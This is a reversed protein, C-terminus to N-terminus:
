KGIKYSGVRKQDKHLTVIRFGVDYFLNYSRDVCRVSCAAVIASNYWSSGKVIREVLSDNSIRFEDHEKEYPFHLSATWEWVNGAMDCPGEPWPELYIGVPSPQRMNLVNTSVHGKDDKWEDGWPYIRDDDVQRSAHEWEFETPITIIHEPDLKGTEHGLQMAWECYALAEWYNIGVVPQNPRNFRRDLWYYPTNRPATRKIAEEQLRDVDIEKDRIEKAHHEYVKSLWHDQILKLTKQDGSVWGRGLDSNWYELKSYGDDEIFAQFEVNTVPYRGIRFSEFEMKRVDGVFGGSKTIIDLDFRSSGVQAKGSSVNVLHDLPSCYGNDSVFRSDGLYGLVTASRERDSLTLSSNEVHSMLRNQTNEWLENNYIDDFKHLAIRHRGIEALMEAGLQISSVSNKEESKVLDKILTLIYFLNSGEHGAFSAMLRFPERWHATKGRTLAESHHAGTAYYQGALFEQFSRHAFKFRGNGIDLLLGHSKLFRRALDDAIPANNSFEASSTTDCIRTAIEKILEVTIGSKEAEATEQENLHTWYAIEIACALVLPTAITSSGAERARWKASDALMYTIARDCIVARSEPLRAEESHILVLLALLLPSEALEAIGEERIEQELAVSLEKSQKTSFRGIRVAASYWRQIYLSQEKSSYPLLELEREIPIKRTPTSLQYDFKRCSVVVRNGNQQQLINIIAKRIRNLMHDKVEDLGDLMLLAKGQVMTETLFDELEKAKGSGLSNEVLSIEPVGSLLLQEANNQGEMTITSLSIWIPLLISDKKSWKRAAEVVFMALSTSKGSGPDGLILLSQDTSDFLERLDVGADKEAMNEHTGTKGKRTQSDAVRLPTWIQDLTVLGENEDKKHLSWSAPDGFSLTSGRRILDSLYQNIISDKSVKSNANASGTQNNSANTPTPKKGIKVKSFVAILVTAVGVGLMQPLNDLIYDIIAHVVEM